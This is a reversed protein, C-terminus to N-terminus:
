SAGHQLSEARCNATICITLNQIIHCLTQSFCSAILKRYNHTDWQTIKTKIFDQYHVKFSTGHRYTLCSENMEKKDDLYQHILILKAKVQSFMLIVQSVQLLVMCGETECKVTSFKTLFFTTCSQLWKGHSCRITELCFM